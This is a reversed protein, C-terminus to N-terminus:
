SGPGGVAAHIAKGTVDGESEGYTQLATCIVVAGAGYM